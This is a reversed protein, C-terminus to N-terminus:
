RRLRVITREKKGYIRAPAICGHSIGVVCEAVYGSNSKGCHVCACKSGVSVVVIIMVINVSDEVSYFVSHWACALKKLQESRHGSQSCRMGLCTNAFAQVGQIQFNPTHFSPVFYFYLQALHELLLLTLAVCRGKPITIRREPEFLLDTPGSARADDHWLVFRM